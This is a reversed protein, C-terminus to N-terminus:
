CLDSALRLADARLMHTVDARTIQLLLASAILPGTM